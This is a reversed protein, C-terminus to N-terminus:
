IVKVRAGEHATMRYNLSVRIGSIAVSDEGMAKALMEYTRFRPSSWRIMGKEGTSLIRLSNFFKGPVVFDDIIMRTLEAEEEDSFIQNHRGHADQM